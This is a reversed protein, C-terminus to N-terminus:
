FRYHAQLRTTVKHADTAKANIDLYSYYAEFSLKPSYQYSVRAVAELKEGAAYLKGLFDKVETGGYVVDAGIRLVEDFTYGATIFGFTNQGFDGYFKSGDSYWIEEGAIFDGLNGLDELTTLTYGNKNGYRLGGLSADFGNFSVGGNLAFFNGNKFDLPKFGSEVNNGLYAGALSWEVGDFIEAEVGFTLAYFFAYNNLYSLWLQPAISFNNLDFAGLAAVGYLNENFPAVFPAALGVSEGGGFVDGDDKANFSDYAFAQLALGEISTNVVKAGIGVLGDISNDTWLTDLQMKGFSVSTAVPENSYTFYYQRVDFATTTNAGKPVDGAGKPDGGFGPDSVEGYSLQLFAKFNDAIAAEFGIAARWKHEQRSFVAPSESVFGRRHWFNGSASDYRYRLEGSVDVDKILEELPTAFSNSTLLLASSSALLIKRM